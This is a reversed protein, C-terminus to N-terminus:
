VLATYVKGNAARSRMIAYLGALRSVNENPSNRTVEETKSLDEDMRALFSDLERNGRLVERNMFQQLSLFDAAKVVAEVYEREKKMAITGNQEDETMERDANDLFSFRFQSEYYKFLSSIPEPFKEIIAEEAEDIARKLNKSSYKFTRVVDGTISEPLDHIVAKTLVMGILVKDDPMLHRHILLSFLSVWYMHAAVTEQYSVPISSYRVVYDLRRVDGSAAEYIKAWALRELNESTAM